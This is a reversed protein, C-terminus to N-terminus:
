KHPNAGRERGHAINGKGPPMVVVQVVTAAVHGRYRGTRGCWSRCYSEPCRCPLGLGAATRIEQDLAVIQDLGLKASMMAGTRNAATCPLFQFALGGRTTVDLLAIAPSVAM